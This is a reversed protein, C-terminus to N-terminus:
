LNQIYDIASLAAVTGDAVATTIQRFKKQRVDGAAFVGPINTKMDNDAIIEGYKSLEVIGDFKESNPLYGIYVFVGDIKIESEEGSKMNKIKVAQVTEDGLFEIIESEMIFSIKENKTAEDIAHQHAQFNDFQHVIKVSNVWKTLSVAEELASNGGGVVIIDKGAYFDGDCTACYSIGLGKFKEESPLGLKRPKGGTALIVADATFVEDDDIEIMKKASTLGMKTIEVNSEIKCGFSKAQQKMIQSLQFGGTELVGPYNAVAHTLVMQGGVTGENIILTKLKARSLYIGATLGASGGGLVIVDYHTSSM